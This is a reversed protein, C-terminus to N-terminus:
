ITDNQKNEKPEKIMWHILDMVEQPCKEHAEMFELDIMFPKYETEDDLFEKEYRRVKEKHEDIADKYKNELKALEKRYKSAPDKQGPIDYVMQYEGLRIPDPIKNFKPSGDDNKECYKKALDERVKQYEEMKESLKVAKQMDEIIPRVLRKNKSVAYTVRPHEFKARNLGIEFSYLDSKKM